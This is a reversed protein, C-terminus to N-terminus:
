DLTIMNEPLDKVRVKKLFPVEAYRRENINTRLFKTEMITLKEAFGPKHVTVDQRICMESQEDFFKKAEGNNSSSKAPQMQDAIPKLNYCITQNCFTAAKMKQFHQPHKELYPLYNDTLEKLILYNKKKITPNVLYETMQTLHPVYKNDENVYM